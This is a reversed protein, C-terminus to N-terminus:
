ILIQSIINDDFKLNKMPLESIRGLKLGLLKHALPLAEAIRHEVMIITIQQQQNLSQLKDKVLSINKGALGTFPEDILLMKPKHLIAMALVLIQKEGGSLKSPTHQLLPKLLAFNELAEEKREKRLAVNSIALSSVELNEAVTMNEYCNNKQPIYILGKEILQHVPASTINEGNLFIEGNSGEFKPMLGYIRKLLTSKGSGNSGILLAIEGAKIECSVEFLIQKKGYGTSINKLELM